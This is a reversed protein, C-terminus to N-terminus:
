LLAGIFGGILQAVVYAPVERWPFRGRLALALTVTPNVHAGSVPGVVLVAIALAFGFVLPTLGGATLAGACGIGVLITTGLVEAVLRRIPVTNMLQRKSTFPPALKLM